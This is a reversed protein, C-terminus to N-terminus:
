NFTYLTVININPKLCQYNNNRPWYIVHRQLRLFLSWSVKLVLEQCDWSSGMLIFLGLM